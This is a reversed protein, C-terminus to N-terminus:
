WERHWKQGWRPGWRPGWPGGNCKSVGLPDMQHRSASTTRAWKRQFRISQCRNETSFESIAWIFLLFVGRQGRGTGIKGELIIGSYGSRGGSQKPVGLPAWGTDALMEPGNGSWESGRVIKQGLNLFQGDNLISNGRKSRERQWKLGM